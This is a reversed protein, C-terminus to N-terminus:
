LKYPGYTEYLQVPLDDRVFICEGESSWSVQIAIIEVGNQWAKESDHGYFHKRSQIDNEFL